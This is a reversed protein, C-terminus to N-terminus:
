LLGLKKAILIILERVEKDTLSKEDRKKFKYLEKISKLEKENNLRKVMKAGIQELLMYKVIKKM